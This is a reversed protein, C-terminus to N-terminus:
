KAAEKNNAIKDIIKKYQQITDAPLTGRLKRSLSTDAIGLEDALEWLSVGKGHAYFALEPNNLNKMNM